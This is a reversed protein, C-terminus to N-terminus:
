INNLIDLLKDIKEKELSPYNGIYWGFDSVHEANPFDDQRWPYDKLYPQRLQNGGGSLGRRFEIGNEALAKEVLDRRYFLESEQPRSSLINEKLIVIFAYNVQGGMEFDTFYKESNLNEVFYKFNNSRIINNADLKKLQSLGLVANIETSRFNYAPALFIFDKNLKPYSNIYSQRMVPDSMERCMSHSRYARMHQYLKDNNTCIMGGEITSMHHAFYFSFNSVDEIAGLKIGHYNAGHSECHDGILYVGRANVMKLFEPTYCNLGLVSVSLIALTKENILEGLKKVDYSLNKLNIDCFVPKLGAHIIAAVDSVWGIPPCIVEDGKKGNLERLALLTLINASSGSNVFLSHKVSLWKSWEQEFERVKPGNTLQPIPDQQLFSILSNIDERDINNSMLPHNM